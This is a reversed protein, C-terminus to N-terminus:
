RLAGADCDDSDEEDCDDNNSEDDEHEEAYAECGEIFSQSNGGCDDPDTIDNREAWAYGARHGSCDDTCIYGHFEQSPANPVLGAIGVALSIAVLAVRM